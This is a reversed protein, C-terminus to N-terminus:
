RAPSPSSCDQFLPLKVLAFALVVQLALGAIVLRPRVWRRNEGIAWALGALVLFGFASQLTEM